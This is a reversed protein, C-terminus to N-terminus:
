PINLSLREPGHPGVYLRVDLAALLERRQAFTLGGGRLASAFQAAQVAYNPAPRAPRPGYEARLQELEAVYPAALREAVSQPIKGAAFPEWARAIADELESVRAPPPSVAPEIPPAVIEALLAPDTLHEVLYLWWLDDAEGTPWNRSNACPQELGQRAAEGRRSRWCRYYIYQGYKTKHGDRGISGGCDPCRVHGAWLLSTDRPGPERKRLARKVQVREFQEKTIIAEYRVTIGQFVAEGTYRSNSLINNLSTTAWRGGKATPLGEANLVQQMRAQGMTEALDFVRRIIPAVAPDPAPLTSRGRQDRQLVYGWPVDGHPWLGHIAAKARKGSVLQHVINQYDSEADAADRLFYKWNRADRLNGLGAVHVTGGRQHITRAIGVIVEVHRGVRNPHSFIFNLGPRERLLAYYANEAARAHNAGSVSEELWDIIDLGAREAEREIEQRQRDPGYQDAQQDTSVRICGIAAISPTM